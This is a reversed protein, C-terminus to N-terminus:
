ATKVWFKFSLKLCLAQLGFTEISTQTIQPDNLYMLLLNCNECLYIGLMVRNWNNGVHIISYVSDVM